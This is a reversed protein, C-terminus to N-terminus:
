AERRLSEVDAPKEDEEVPAAQAKEFFLLLHGRFSMSIEHDPNKTSKRTMTDLPSPHLHQGSSYRVLKQQKRESCSSITKVIAASEQVYDARLADYEKLTSIRTERTKSHSINFGQELVTLADSLRSETM